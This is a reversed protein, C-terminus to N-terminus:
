MASISLALAQRVSIGARRGVPRSCFHVLSPSTTCSLKILVFGQMVHLHLTLVGGAQSPVNEAARRPQERRRADEGRTTYAGPRFHTPRMQPRRRPFQAAACALAAPCDGRPFQLTRHACLFSAGGRRRAPRRAAAGAYFAVTRRQQASTQHSPMVLSMQSVSDSHVQQTTSPDLTQM